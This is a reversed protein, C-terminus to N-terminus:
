LLDLMTYTIFMKCIRLQSLSVCSSVEGQSIISMDISKKVGTHSRRCERFPVCLRIESKGRPGVSAQLIIQGDIHTKRFLM